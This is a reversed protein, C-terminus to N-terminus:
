TTDRKIKLNTELIGFFSETTFPKQLFIINLGKSSYTNVISNAELGCTAIVPYTVKRSALDEFPRLDVKGANVIEVILLNPKLLPLEQLAKNRDQFIKLVANEFWKKIALQMLQVPYSNEDMIVIRPSLRKNALAIADVVMGSIIHKVRPAAKEVASAPKIVLAFGNKENTASV